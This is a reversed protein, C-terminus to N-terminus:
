FESQHYGICFFLKKWQMRLISGTAHSLSGDALALLGLNSTSVGANIDLAILVMTKYYFKITMSNSYIRIHISIHAEATLLVNLSVSNHQGCMIYSPIITM